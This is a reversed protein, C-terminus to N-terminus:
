NVLISDVGNVRILSVMREPINIYTLGKEKKQAFRIWEILMSVGASDADNIHNLDFTISQNKNAQSIITKGKDLFDDVTAYSLIGSLLWHNESLQKFYDM